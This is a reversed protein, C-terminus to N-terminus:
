GARPEVPEWISVKHTEPMLYLALLFCVAPVVIPYILAYGVSGTAAFAASTVFPVLGGGWGNGIHYPVSVSTYRIRGPFYEALFAGVPGYVMGVYCVLIFIIFIATPYNINDPQTVTGLWLYLPYYTIAALLMGGLIVPKRGIIDSLWGFFILSPTALLLAAGVIYASNLADVKSVQQLFYLAWFQGSYWVVGQGILVITAIGVFKINSSLFAEKWPNRTMQGKAKIEAFIPTEQLQLRIYIAIGVLLFSVLFPVRWAWAEFVENGFYTRTAIIVALSVVIGLTPSTQLWGTYYGRREDPVHEAVYTIAGGYEGGLCLGQIMRLGFLLFAATLGIAEYTPILGIAGTGLGMGSLTILFTYKRGVRDGMWGFLFAGLPRILFGATFLAITSLLAAVPHSQEFFKVSLVAALSGFIYFDYWEIINGVSAAVIVRRFDKPVQVAM